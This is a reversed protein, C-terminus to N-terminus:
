NAPEATVTMLESSGHGQAYIEDFAVQLENVLEIPTNKSVAFYLSISPLDLPMVPIFRACDVRNNKCSLDFTSRSAPFMDIRGKLLKEFNQDPSSVPFVHNYGQDTLHQFTASNRVSGIRFHKVTEPTILHEEAFDKTTYFYYEFRTVEGIWHFMSERAPTRAISYILTNPMKSAMEYARAWPMISIDYSLNAKALVSEVLETSPGVVKGKQSYQLPFAEETVVNIKVDKANVFLSLGIAALFLM